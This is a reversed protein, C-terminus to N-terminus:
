ESLFRKIVEVDWIQVEIYREPGKDGNRNWEQPFGYREILEMVEEKVYISVFQERALSELERRITLYDKSRQSAFSTGDLRIQNSIKEAEDKPLKSLNKFPGIDKDFYHYMNLKM